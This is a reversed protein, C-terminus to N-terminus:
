TAKVAVIRHEEGNLWIRLYTSTGTPATSTTLGDMANVGTGGIALSGNVAPSIASYGLVVCGSRNNADANALSGIITNKSGTSLLRGANTGVGVNNTATTNGSLAERGFASNSDGTSIELAATGFAANNSSTQNASLANTGVATNQSAITNNKLANAGVATNNTGSTTDKLANNGVATNDLGTTSLLTSLGLGVSNQSTQKLNNGTINGGAVFNDDTKLTDSASTYLNALNAGSGFELADSPQTANVLKVPGANVIVEDSASDGLTTNGLVSLSNFSPSLETPSVEVYGTAQTWAYVKGTDLAVYARNTEGTTAAIAAYNAYTSLILTTVRNTAKILPMYSRLKTKSAL